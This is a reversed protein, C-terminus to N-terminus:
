NKSRVFEKAPGEVADYSAGARWGIGHQLDQHLHFCEEAITGLLDAGRRHDAEEFWFIRPPPMDLSAAVQRCFAEASAATSSEPHQDLKRFWHLFTTPDYNLQTM